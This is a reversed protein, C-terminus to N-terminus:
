GAFVQDLRSGLKQLAALLSRLEDKGVFGDIDPSRDAERSLDIGSFLLIRSRSWRAKLDPVADIGARAGALHHDLVIVDPDLDVALDLADETCAAEAVIEIDHAPRLTLRVLLRMDADDEILLLTTM